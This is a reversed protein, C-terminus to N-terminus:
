KVSPIAKGERHFGGLEYCAVQADPTGFATRCVTGWANNICIEIRGERTGQELNDSGGVLRLDGDSCNGNPTSVATSFHLFCNHCLYRYTTYVDVDADTIFYQVCTEYMHACISAFCYVCMGQCVVGADEFRGCPYQPMTNYVCSLLTSESGSCSVDRLLLPAM